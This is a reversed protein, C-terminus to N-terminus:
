WFSGSGFSGFSNISNYKSTGGSQVNNDHVNVNNDYKSDEVTQLYQGVLNNVVRGYNGVPSVAGASEEGFSPAIIAGGKKNMRSKNNRFKNIRSKYKRSKYKRSKNNRFKNMRSKYKRSKNNRFKYKRSKYKRSKLINLKKKNNLSKKVKLTRKKLLKNIIHPNINKFINKGNSLLKKNSGGFLNNMMNQKNNRDEIAKFSAKSHDQAGGLKYMLNSPVLDQYNTM